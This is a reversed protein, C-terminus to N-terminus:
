SLQIVSLPFPKFAYLLGLFFCLFLALGVDVWADELYGLFIKANRERWVIWLLTLCVIKWLTKDRTSNGFCRFSIVMMNCISSPQVRVMRAHSFLRCLICWNPSLAKFLRRLQLMDSTNVKKYAVLWDFTMVKSPVRLKWLFKTPHFAVLDLLNSM